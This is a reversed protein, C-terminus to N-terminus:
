CRRPAPPAARGGLGGGFRLPSHRQRPTPPAPREGDVDPRPAIAGRDHGGGLRLPSHHRRPAPVTAKRGQAGEPRLPAYRCNPPTMDAAPGRASTRPCGPPSNPSPWGEEGEVGEHPTLLIRIFHDLMAIALLVTGVSMVIQPIWLPTADLGQSIDNWKASGINVQIAYWAFFVATVAAVLHCWIEAFRRWRGTQMLVLNVRIHAGRDLAYALAMFSAGAMAYGAYDTAGPLVNGTWRAIVQATILLLIAVMFAAGLAGGALYLRDLGRRLASM